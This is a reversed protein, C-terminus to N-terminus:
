DTAFTAAATFDYFYRPQGTEPFYYLWRRTELSDGFQYLYPFVARSSWWWSALGFDYVWYDRPGPGALYLFGHQPHWLSRGGLPYVGGLWGPEWLGEGNPQAGPFLSAVPPLEDYIFVETGGALNNAFGTLVLGSTSTQLEEMIGNPYQRGRAALYDAFIQVVPETDAPPGEFDWILATKELRDQGASWREAYGTVRRGDQSVSLAEGDTWGPPLPLERALSRGIWLVPRDAEAFYAYGCAVEATPSLDRGVAGQAGAPWPLFQVVGNAEWIMVTEDAGRLANGMVAGSGAIVIPRSAEWEATDTLEAHEGSRSWRAWVVNPSQSPQPTHAAVWQGNTSLRWNKALVDAAPDEIVGTTRNWVGCLTALENTWVDLGAAHHLLLFTTGDDSVAVPALLRGLEDPVTSWEAEWSWFLLGDPTLPALFVTLDEAAGLWRSHPQAAGTLQQAPRLNQAVLTGWWGSSLATLLVLYLVRAPGATLRFARHRRNSYKLKCISM